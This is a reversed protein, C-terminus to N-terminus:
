SNAEIPADASEDVSQLTGILRYARYRGDAGNDEVEGAAALAKLHNKVATPSKGIVAAVMPASFWGGARLAEVIRERTEAARGSASTGLQDLDGAHTFKPGITGKPAVSLLIRVPTDFDKSFSQFKIQKKDATRELLIVTDANQAKGGTGKIDDISVERGKGRGAKQNDKRFHDNVILTIDLRRTLNALRHLIVGQKEDDFSSIGPVSKQYTDLFVVKRNETTIVHEFWEFIREDTLTFSPAVHIIFREPELPGPFEADNDLIRDQARRDPDELLLYLVREVPTIAYRGFLQGGQLMKRALHLGLLTKGTQSQAAILVFTGLAIISEIIPRLPSCAWNQVNAVDLRKWHSPVVFAPTAPLEPQEPTWVPASEAMRSLEEGVDDHEKGALWDSVDGKDPLDPLELMKVSAVKGHLSAAVKRAHERGPEDNDPIITVHQHPRFSQTYEDRWKGAGGPNCTATFGLDRLNDVDKEGEVIFIQAASLLLPLHYLVRRVGKVNPTGDPQRQFFHKPEERVVDFLHVGTEDEYRYAVVEGGAPSHTGNNNLLGRERLWAHVAAKDNLYDLGGALFAALGWKNGDKQCPGCLWSNKDENIKLSPHHDNHQTCLYFHEPGERRQEQLGAAHAVDICSFSM